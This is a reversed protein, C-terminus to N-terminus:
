PVRRRPRTVGTKKITDLAGWVYRRISAGPATWPTSPSVEGQDTAGFREYFRRARSNGAFVSLHLGHDPYRERCWDGVASLLLTGIGESRRDPDAHINDLFSGWEADQGGFVCAFGVIGDEDEAVVVYQSPPPDTLRMTWVALRDADIPGDLYEDRLFGRYTARWSRAHLHAIATADEPTAARIEYPVDRGEDLSARRSRGRRRKARRQERLLRMARQAPCRPPSVLNGHRTERWSKIRNLPLAAADFM